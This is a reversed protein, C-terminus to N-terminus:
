FVRPVFGEANTIRASDGTARITFLSAMQVAAELETSAELYAVAGYLQYSSFRPLYKKFVALQSLFYTLEEADLEDTPKVLVVQQPKENWAIIGFSKTAGDIHITHKGIYNTFRIGYPAFAVGILSKRLQEEWQWFAADMIQGSANLWWPNPLSYNSHDASMVIM